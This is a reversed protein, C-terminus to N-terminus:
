GFLAAPTGGEARGREGERTDWQATRGWKVTNKSIRVRGRCDAGCMGGGDGRASDLGRRKGGRRESAEKGRHELARVRLEGRSFCRTHQFTDREV